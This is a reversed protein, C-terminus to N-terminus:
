AEFLPSVVFIKKSRLDKEKVMADFTKGGDLKENNFINYFCM